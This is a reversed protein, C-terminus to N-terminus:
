AKKVDSNLANDVEQKFATYKNLITSQDQGPYTVYEYSINEFEGSLCSHDELDNLIIFFRDQYTKPIKKLIDTHDQFAHPLNHTELLQQLSSLGPSLFSRTIVYIPVIPQALTLQQSVRQKKPSLFSLCGEEM